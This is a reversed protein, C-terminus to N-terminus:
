RAKDDRTLFAEFEDAPVPPSILFGQLEDCGNATLFRVQEETEVGEALSSLKLGRAMTLIATALASADGGAAVGEVFSRDLKV